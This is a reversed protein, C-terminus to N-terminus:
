PVPLDTLTIALPWDESTWNLEKEVKRLHDSWSYVCIKQSYRHKYYLPYSHLELHSSDPLVESRARLAWHPFSTTVNLAEFILCTVNWWWCASRSNEGIAIFLHKRLSGKTKRSRWNLSLSLESKLYFEYMRHIGLSAPVITTEM